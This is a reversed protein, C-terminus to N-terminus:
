DVDALASEVQRALDELKFPKQLFRFEAGQERVAGEAYGSVLLVALDPRETRFEHALEVGTTDPLVIDSVLLDYLRDAVSKRAEVGDAATDVSYGLATLMTEITKRVLGQDEVVLM